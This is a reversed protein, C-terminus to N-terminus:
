APNLGGRLVNKAHRCASVSGDSFHSSVVPCQNFEETFIPVNGFLCFLLGKM